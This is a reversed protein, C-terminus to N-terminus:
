QALISPSGRGVNCALQAPNPYFRPRDRLIVSPLRGFEVMDGIDHRVGRGGKNILEM